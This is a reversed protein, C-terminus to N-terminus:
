ESSGDSYPPLGQKQRRRHEPTSIEAGSSLQLHPRVLQPEAAIPPPLTSPVYDSDRASTYHESESESQDSASEHLVVPRSRKAARHHAARPPLDSNGDSTSSHVEIQELLDEEQQSEVASETHLVQSAEPDDSLVEQLVSEYTRRLPATGHQATTWIRQLLTPTIQLSAIRVPIKM